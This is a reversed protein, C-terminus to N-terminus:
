RTVEIVKNISEKFQVYDKTMNLSKDKISKITNSLFDCGMQKVDDTFHYWIGADGVECYSNNDIYIHKLIIIKANFGLSRLVNLALPINLLPIEYIKGTGSIVIIENSGLLGKKSEPAFVYIEQGVEAIKGGLLSFALLKSEAVDAVNLIQNEGFFLKKVDEPLLSEIVNQQYGYDDYLSILAEDVSMKSPTLQTRIFEQAITNDNNVATAYLSLIKDFSMDYRGIIQDGYLAFFKCKEPHKLSIKSSRNILSALTGGGMSTFTEISIRIPEFDVLQEQYFRITNTKIEAGSLPDEGIESRDKPNPDFKKLKFNLLKLLDADDNVLCNDEEAEISTGPQGFDIDNEHDNTLSISPSISLFILLVLFIM